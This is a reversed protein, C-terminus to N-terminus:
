FPLDDQNGVIPQEEQQPKEDLGREIFKEVWTPTGILTPHIPELGEMLPSIGAIVSRIIGNRGELKLNLHCNSGKLKEVDFGEKIEQETLNRGLWAELDKRLNAKDGLSLTYFKSIQFRQGRSTETKLEWIIIIQHGYDEHGNFNTTQWGIDAIISCTAQHLGAKPNEFNTDKKAYLSM